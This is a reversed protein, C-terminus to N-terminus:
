SIRTGGRTRARWSRVAAVLGAHLMLNLLAAGVIGLTGLTGFPDDSGWIPWAWPLGLGTLWLLALGAGINADPADGHGITALAFYALGALVALAHLLYLFRSLSPM